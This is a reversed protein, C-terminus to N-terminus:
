RVLRRWYRYKFVKWINLLHEMMLRRYSYTDVVKVHGTFWEHKVDLKDKTLAFNEGDKKLVEVLGWEEDASIVYDVKKGDLYVEYRGWNVNHWPKVWENIDLRM